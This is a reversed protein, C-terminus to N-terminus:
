RWAQAFWIPPADRTLTIVAVAPLTLLQRSRIDSAESM